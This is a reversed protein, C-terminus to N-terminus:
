YNYLAQETKIGFSVFFGAKLNTAIATEATRTAASAAVPITAYPCFLVPLRVANSSDFAVPVADAFTVVDEFAVVVFSVLSSTVKVALESGLEWHEETMVTSSPVTDNFLVVVIVASASLSSASVMVAPSFSVCTADSSWSISFAQLAIRSPLDTV